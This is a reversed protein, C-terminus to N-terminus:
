KVQCEPLGAISAAAARRQEEPPPAGCSKDSVLRYGDTAVKAGPPLGKGQHLERAIAAPLRCTGKVGGFRGLGAASPAAIAIFREAESGPVPIAEFGGAGGLPTTAGGKVQGTPNDDDPWVLLAESTGYLNFVRVFATEDSKLWIQTKEGACLSGGQHADIHLSLGRAEEPSVPAIAASPAPGASEPFSLHASGLIKVSAGSMALARLNVEVVGVRGERRAVLEGRLSIDVGKPLGDGAWGRPPAILAAKGTLAHEIRGRLWDARPGGPIGGDVIRDITLRRGRANTPVLEAIARALDADLKHLTLVDRDFQERDETKLVAMACVEKGNSGTKWGSIKARLAPCSAADRGCLRQELKQAAAESARERASPTVADVFATDQQWGTPPVLDGGCRWTEGPPAQEAVPAASATVGASPSAPASVVPAPGCAALSSGLLALSFLPARTEGM